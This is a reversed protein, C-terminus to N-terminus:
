VNILKRISFNVMIPNYKSSGSGRPMGSIVDVIESFAKQLIVFFYVNFIGQEPLNESFIDKVRKGLAYSLQYLLSTATQGSVITDQSGTNLLDAVASLGENIFEEAKRSERFSHGINASYNLAASHQAEASRRLVLTGAGNDLFVRKSGWADTSARPFENRIEELLANDFIM